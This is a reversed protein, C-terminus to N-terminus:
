RENTRNKALLKFPFSEQLKGRITEETKKIIRPICINEEKNLVQEKFVKFGNEVTANSDRALGFRAIGAASWVPYYILLYEVLYNLLDESYFKNQEINTPFKELIEDKAKSFSCNIISPLTSNGAIEDSNDYEDDNTCLSDNSEESESEELVSSSILEKLNNDEYFNGFIRVFKELHIM